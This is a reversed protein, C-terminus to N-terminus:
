LDYECGFIDYEDEDYSLEGIEEVCCMECISCMSCILCSCELGVDEDDIYQDNDSVFILDQENNVYDCGEVREM